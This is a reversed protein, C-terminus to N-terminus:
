MVLKIKELLSPMKHGFAKIVYQRLYITSETFPIVLFGETGYIEQVLMDM